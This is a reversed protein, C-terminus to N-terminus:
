ASGKPNLNTPIFRGEGLLMQSSVTIVIVATGIVFIPPLVAAAARTFLAGPAVTELASRDFQFGMVAVGALEEYLWPGVMSLMFAGTTIAAATSAEKSRLVDGKKAADKKRKETPEFRKEGTTEESM